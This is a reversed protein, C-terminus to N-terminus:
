GLVTITLNKLQVFTDGVNGYNNTSIYISFDSQLTEGPHTQFYFYHIGNPNVYSEGQISFANVDFYEYGAIGQKITFGVFNSNAVYSNATGYTGTTAHFEFAPNHEPLANSLLIVDMSPNSPSEAATVATFNAWFRVSKNAALAANIQTFVTSPIPVLDALSIPDSSTVNFRSNDGTTDYNFIVTSGGGGSSGGNSVCLIGPFDNTNM